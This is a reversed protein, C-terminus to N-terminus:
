RQNLQILADSVIWVKHSDEAELAKSRAEATLTQRLGELAIASAEREADFSGKLLNIQGDLVACKSMAADLQSRLELDGEQLRSQLVHLDSEFRSKLDSELKTSAALAEALETRLSAIVSDKEHQAAEMVNIRGNEQM